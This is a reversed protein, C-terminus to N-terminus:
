LDCHIYRNLKHNIDRAINNWPLFHYIVYSVYNSDFRINAHAEFWSQNEHRGINM